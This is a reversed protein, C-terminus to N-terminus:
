KEEGQKPPVPSFYGLLLLLVGVGIFSVIREVTGVKSLDVLFLKIVVLGLLGAGCMWPLRKNSRTAWLMMALAHLAWFPSLALQVITTQLMIHLILPIDAWRSLTRLLVAHMWYFTTLGLVIPIAFRVVKPDTEFRVAADRSWVLLVLIAGATAIDLPNAIPIYPLPAASGNSVANAIVVWIWLAVAIPVMGLDYARLYSSLPWTRRALPWHAWALVLIAPLAAGLVSWTSGHTGLEGFYWWLQWSALYTALLLSLTHCADLFKEPLDDEQTRLACVLSAIALPWAMWGYDAFPHVQRAIAFMCFIGLIPLLLLSAVTTYRWRLVRGGYVLIQASIAALIIHSAQAYDALYLRIEHSGAFWWWLLGWGLMVVELQEEWIQLRDNNRNITLATVIGSAAIFLAGMLFVGPSPHVVSYLNALQQPFSQLMSIGAGLQLLLAFARAVPRRQRMSIWYIGAGEAAWAASTWQAELAFPIALTAFIAGLALFSEVLVRYEDQHRRYLVMALPLYILGLGLASLATGFAMDHVMQYQLGFAALPVGFVLVGDVYDVREGAFTTSGISSMEQKRRHAYMLTVGLYLLFFVLLFPETTAFMDDQYRKSGWLTGIGFTFLFGLVNLPRWAKFWAIGVIGLNLVLYYSFLMVHSGQGTTALVPALFGGCIGIVALTRANQMVALAASLACTAVLVAFTLSGPLLGHLRYASFTLLYLLAVGLGQLVMAYALRRERLQWGIGLIVLAGAGAGLYRMELAVTVHEVTFKLLFAIGFFLVLAGLRVLANGGFLWQRAREILKDEFSITTEPPAVPTQAPASEPEPTVTLSTTVAEKVSAAISTAAANEVVVAEPVPLVLDVTIPLEAVAPPTEPSGRVQAVSGADIKDALIMVCKRLEAVEAILDMIADHGAERAKGATEVHEKRQDYGGIANSNSAAKTEDAASAAEEADLRQKYMGTIAGAVLGLLIGILVGLGGHIMGGVLAGIAAFFYGLAGIASLYGALM